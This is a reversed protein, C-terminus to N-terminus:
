KVEIDKVARDLWYEKDSNADAAAGKIVIDCKEVHAEYFNIQDCDRLAYVRSDIKSKQEILFALVIAFVIGAVVFCMTNMIQKMM